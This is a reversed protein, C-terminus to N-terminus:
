LDNEYLDSSYTKSYFVFGNNSNNKINFQHQITKLDLYNIDEKFIAYFIQNPMSGKKVSMDNCINGGTDAWGLFTNGDIEIPQLQFTETEINFVIPNPNNCILHTIDKGM